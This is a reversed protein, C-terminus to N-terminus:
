GLGVREAPVQVLSGANLPNARVLYTMQQWVTVALLEKDSKAAEQAVKVEKAKDGSVSAKLRELADILANGRRNDEALGM